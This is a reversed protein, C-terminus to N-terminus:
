EKGEMVKLVAQLAEDWIRKEFVALKMTPEIERVQRALESRTFADQSKAISLYPEYFGKVAGNTATMLEM